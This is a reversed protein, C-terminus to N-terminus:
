ARATRNPGTPHAISSAGLDPNETFAKVIHRALEVAERSPTFAENIIPVQVPHIALKSTFGDREAEVCEKILGAEDRFNIFVTDIAAVSAASAGLLTM